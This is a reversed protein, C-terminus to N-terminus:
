AARATSDAKGERDAGADGSVAEKVTGQERRQVVRLREGDRSIV